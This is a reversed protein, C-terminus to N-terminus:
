EIRKLTEILHAEKFPKVIFATAGSLVADKVMYEQGMATVMVVKAEPNIEKIMKLATIGDVEPMTMDMTVLDPKLTMYQEVAVLGNNAEGVVEYGNNELTIKISNRMFNADDVILVKKM